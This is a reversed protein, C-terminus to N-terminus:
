ITPGSMPELAVTSVRGLGPILDDLIQHTRQFAARRKLPSQPAFRLLLPFVGGNRCALAKWMKVRCVDTCFSEGLPSRTFSWGGEREGKEVEDKTTGVLEGSFGSTRCSFHWIVRSVQKAM